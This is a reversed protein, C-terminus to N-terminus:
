RLTGPGRTARREALSEFLRAPENRPGDKHALLRLTGLMEPYCPSIRGAYTEIRGLAGTHDFDDWLALARSLAQAFGLRGRDPANAAIKIGDLGDAAEHYAYRRWAKLYPVMARDLRLRAVSAVMAQATGPSCTFSIPVPVRSSKFISM